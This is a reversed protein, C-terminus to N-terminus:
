ESAPKNQDFLSQLDAKSAGAKYPVGLEDLKARLFAATGEKPGGQDSGDDYRTHFNEDFSDADILVFDGQGEGWPDVKIVKDSM